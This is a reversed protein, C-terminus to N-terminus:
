FYSKFAEEEETTERIRKLHKSQWPTTMILKKSLSLVMVLLLEEINTRFLTLCILPPFKNLSVRVARCHGQVCTAHQCAFLEYKLTRIIRVAAKNM